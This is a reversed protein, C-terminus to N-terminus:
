FDTGKVLITKIEGNPIIYLDHNKTELYTSKLTIKRIKGSYKGITINRNLKFEPEFLLYIGSVIDKFFSQAGFGVAFGIISSSLLYPTMDIGFTNLISLIALFYIVVKVGQRLFDIVTSNKATQQKQPIKVFRPILKVLVFSLLLILASKVIQTTM